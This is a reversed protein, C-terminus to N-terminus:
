SVNVVEAHRWASRVRDEGKLTGLMNAESSEAGFICNPKRSFDLVSPFNRKSEKIANIYWAITKDDELSMGGYHAGNRGKVFKALHERYEILENILEAQLKKNALFPKIFRLLKSVRGKGDVSVTAGHKWGKQSRKFVQVCFKVEIIKLCETVRRVFTPDTNSVSVEVKLMPNGRLRNSRKVFCARISGEGDIAGALWVAAILSDKRSISKTNM